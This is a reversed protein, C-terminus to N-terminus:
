GNRRRERSLCRRSATLRARRAHLQVDVDGRQRIIGAIELSVQDAQRVIRALPPLPDDVRDGRPLFNEVPLLRHDRLEPLHESPREIASGEIRAHGAGDLPGAISDLLHRELAPRSEVDRRVEIHRGSRSATRRNEPREPMRHVALRPWAVLLQERVERAFAVDDERVVREPLAFADLIRSAPGALRREPPPVLSCSYAPRRRM